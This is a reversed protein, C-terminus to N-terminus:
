CEMQLLFIIDIRQKQQNKGCFWKEDFNSSIVFKVPIKWKSIWSTIEVNKNKRSKVYLKQNRLVDLQLQSDSNIICM